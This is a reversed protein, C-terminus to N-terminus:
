PVWVEGLLNGLFLLGDRALQTLALEVQQEGIGVGVV